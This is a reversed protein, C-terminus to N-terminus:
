PLFSDRTSSASAMKREKVVERPKVSVVVAIAPILAVRTQM